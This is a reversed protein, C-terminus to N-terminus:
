LVHQAFEPVQAWELGAIGADICRSVDDPRALDGLVVIAGANELHLGIRRGIGHPAGAGTIFATRGALIGTM